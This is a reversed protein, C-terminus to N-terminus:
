AYLQNITQVSLDWWEKWNQVKKMQITSEETINDLEGQLTELYKMYAADRTEVAALHGLTTKTTTVTASKRTLIKNQRTLVTSPIGPWKRIGRECLPKVEEEELSLGARKWRILTLTKQKRVETKAVQVDDITVVEDLELLLKKTLAILAIVFNRACKNACEQLKKTNASIGDRHEEQRREEEQCLSKMQQFSQPHGLAPRLKNQNEAKASEWQELKNKFQQRIEDMSCLLNQLHQQLFSETVLRVTHPLREEFEKLQNRFELLCSNHYDDTQRQYDLLKKGLTEACQDFTEQLYDPRTIPHKEKRYFDEAMTLLIENSEWLLHHIIGKFHESTEPKEGFIQYKRDQRNHRSYKFVSGSSRKQSLANVKKQSISFSREPNQSACKQGKSEISNGAIGPQLRDDQEQLSDISRRMPIELINKIVAVAVDDIMPKGMRSPQVLIESTISEVKSGEKYNELHVSSTNIGAEQVQALPEMVSPKPELHTLYSNLYTTRKALKEMLTKAFSYVDEATVIKKDVSPQGCIDIKNQFQELDANLMETQFNSNAVETKIKVQLNTLFRQIKELFVLDVTLNHFRTEFKNIVETAKELYYSEMKEMDVMILGEIFEIRSSEKELRACFLEIEESSFNGGESFLRCAKIFDINSDRLKGLAEELYQRYSRLSIQMVEVHHLLESHLSNSLFFLKDSKTANLFFLEMDTIKKRFNKSRVSQEDQVKSFEVKEKDLAEIVGACHRDLREQHLLLEAARVSYIDTEIRQARPEHLHFRLELESNLEEKKAAVIVNANSLAQDFWKELHEFFGTRIRKKLELFLSDPLIMQNLNESLPMEENIVCELFTQSRQSEHARDSQFVSYTNGSSTTFFEMVADPNEKVGNEDSIDEGPSTAAETEEVSQSQIEESEKQSEMKENDQPQTECIDEAGGREQALVTTQTKNNGEIPSKEGIESENNEEPLNKRGNEPEESEEVFSKEGTEAEAQEYSEYSHSERPTEKVDEVKKKSALIGPEPDKFRFRVEGELTQEFIERVGFYQSLSTSYSTLEKLIAAPYTKVKELLDHYFTEYGTKISKLSAYAMELHAKLDEETSQQRLKDLIMDLNAEKTQLEQEQQSLNFHHVEWLQVAEQLYRYLDKSKWEMQKALDEFSQDMLELEYEVQRQLEGVKQFFRPKIEKEAEEETCVEWDLLQEKYKQVQALCNEWTKEHQIRIKMMCQVNYADLQKNLTVLSNYWENMLSKTYTPPLLKSVSHLLQIIKQSFSTQEKIMIELDKKVAPPNQVEETAMFASFSEIVADKRITKWTKVQDQWRHRHALEKKLDAETLHLILKAIARQNALLVQNIIMAEKHILRYVDPPMLYSIEELIKTYKKLVVKIKEMRAAEVNNLAEDVEKIWQRRKLSEQAISNWLEGLGETTLTGLEENSEMKEFLLQITEDSESLKTLFVKGPELVTSEMEMGIQTMEQEFATVAAEHRSKRHNELWDIINSNIKEPVISDALGRVERAAITDESEQAKKIASKKIERYLVPNETIGDNPLGQVWSQQRDSLLKGPPAEFNRILPVKRSTLRYPNEAAKKRTEALSHVLRVEDDFIQRYVEGGDIVTVKGVKALNAM